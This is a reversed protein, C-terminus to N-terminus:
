GSLGSRYMRHYHYTSDNDLYSEQECEYEERCYYGNKKFPANAKIIRATTNEDSSHHILGLDIFNKKQYDSGLIHQLQEIRGQKAANLTQVCLDGFPFHIKSIPNGIHEQVPYHLHADFKSETCNWVIQDIEKDTVPVGSFEALGYM